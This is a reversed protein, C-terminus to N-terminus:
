KNIEELLENSEQEMPPYDVLRVPEPMPPRQRTLARTDAMFDNDSQLTKEAATIAAM